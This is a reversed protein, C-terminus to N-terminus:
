AVDAARGKRKQAKLASYLQTYETAMRQASFCKEIREKGDAGFRSAREPNDLLQLWANKLAEKDGFNVLLGTKEHLVLNTVGPISYAVVPVGIAMAEMMCRPIGELSSTMSFITSEKIYKLRDKRYGAFQVRDECNEEAAQKMLTPKLPGDGVLVLRVNDRERCLLGFASVLDAVNKREILQGVYTITATRNQTPPVSGKADDAIETLDVGNMITRIKTEQVGFSRIDKELQESLPAVCDFYKLAKCGMQMFFQLKRDKSNDFGHPTSLAPIGALRAAAIGIIDSKYGHTHLVDIKESKLLRALKFVVTPDFRNRMTCRHTPLGFASFKEV